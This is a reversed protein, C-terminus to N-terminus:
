SSAPQSTLTVPLQLSFVGGSSDYPYSAGLLEGWLSVGLTDDSLYYGYITVAALFTWSLIIYTAEAGTPLGSLTWYPNPSIIPSPSYGAVGTVENAAFNSLLSTHLPTYPQGLLHCTQKATPSIGLMWQLLRTAGEQTVVLSM